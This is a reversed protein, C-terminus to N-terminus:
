PLPNIRRPCATHTTTTFTDSLCSAVRGHGRCHHSPFSCAPGCTLCSLIGAFTCCRDPAHCRSTWAGCKVNAILAAISGALGSCRGRGQESRACLRERRRVVGAPGAAAGKIAEAPLRAGHARLFALVDAHRHRVADLAPTGGYRDVANVGAGHGPARAHSYQSISTIMQHCDPPRQAAHRLMHPVPCQFTGCACAYIFSFCSSKLLATLMADLAPGCAPRAPPLRPSWACLSPGGLTAGLVLRRATALHGNSAALHLATRGHFDGDDADTEGGSLLANVQRRPWTSVRHGQCWPESLDSLLLFPAVLHAAM